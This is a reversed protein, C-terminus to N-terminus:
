GGLARLLANAPQRDLFAPDGLALRIAARAADLEHLCLKMWLESAQHIVIFLMEDHTGSLPSQCALLEDLRLYSTYSPGSAPPAAHDTERTEM